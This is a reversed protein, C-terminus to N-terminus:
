PQRLRASAPRHHEIMFRTCREYMADSQWKQVFVPEPWGLRRATLVEYDWYAGKVLRITIPTGRSEVWERLMRSSPRPMPSIPRFWSASMPGTVFSPSPSCGAFSRTARARPVHVAGYGCSCLRGPRPGHPPDASAPEAVGAIAAEAHIPDFDTTLSSLKLSLNVRPIPGDQDRDILPVEPAAHLPGALGRLLDLCTQQYVDAEAESIVAEGLLDATFALQRGRLRLVTQPPRARAHGGRHVKAGDGARGTRAAWALLAERETGPAALAVSLRLWWPVNEGAEALYEQM